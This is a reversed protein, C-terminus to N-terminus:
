RYSVTANRSGLAAMAAVGSQALVYAPICTRTSKRALHLTRTPLSLRVLDVVGEGGEGSSFCPMLRDPECRPLLIGAIGLSRLRTCLMGSPPKGLALLSPLGRIGDPQAFLWAKEESSLELRGGEASWQRDKSPSPVELGPGREAEPAECAAPCDLADQGAPAEEHVPRGQSFCRDLRRGKASSNLVETHRLGRQGIHGPQPFPAIGLDSARAAFRHAVLRAQPQRGGALAASPDVGPGYHMPSALDGTRTNRNALSFGPLGPASQRHGQLAYRPDALLPRLGVADEYQAELADGWPDGYPSAPDSGDVSATGEGDVVGGGDESYLPSNYVSGRVSSVRAAGPSAISGDQSLGTESLQAILSGGAASVGGGSSSQRSPVGRGLLRLAVRHQLTARDGEPSTPHGAGSQSNTFSVRGSAQSEEPSRVAALYDHPSGVGDTAATGGSGVGVPQQLATHDFADPPALENPQM